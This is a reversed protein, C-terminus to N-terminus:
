RRDNARGIYPARRMRTDACGRWGAMRAAAMSSRGESGEV